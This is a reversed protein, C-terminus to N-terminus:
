FAELLRGARFWMIEYSGVEERAPAVVVLADVSPLTKWRGSQQRTIGLRRNSATRVSVRLKHGDKHAVLRSGPAVGRVPELELEFGKAALVQRAAVRMAEKEVRM